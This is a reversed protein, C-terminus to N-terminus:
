PAVHLQWRSRAHALWKSTRLCESLIEIVTMDMQPTELPSLMGRRTETWWRVWTDFSGLAPGIWIWSWRRRGSRTPDGNGLPDVPRAGLIPGAVPHGLIVGDLTMVVTAEGVATMIAETGRLGVTMEADLGGVITMEAMVRGRGTAVTLAETIRADNM